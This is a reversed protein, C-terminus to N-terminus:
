IEQQSVSLLLLNFNIKWTAAIDPSVNDERASIGLGLRLLHGQYSLINEAISFFGIRSHFGNM